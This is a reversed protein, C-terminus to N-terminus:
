SVKFSQRQDNQGTYYIDTKTIKEVPGEKYWWKLDQRGKDM